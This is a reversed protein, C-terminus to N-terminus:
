VNLVRVGYSVHTSTADLVSIDGNQHRVLFVPSGDDLYAAVTEGPEPRPLSARETEGCASTAFAVSAVLIVLAIRAFPARQM